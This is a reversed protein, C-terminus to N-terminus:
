LTMLWAGNALSLAKASFAGGEVSSSDIVLANEFKEAFELRKPIIDVAVIMSEPVLSRILEMHLLGIPGAGVILVKKLRVVSKDNRENGIVHRIGRICCALPEAMSAEEFSLNLGFKHLGGNEVNYCPVLFQDAFGCPVFNSTRFGECM